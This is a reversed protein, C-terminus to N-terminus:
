RQNFNALSSRCRLRGGRATSTPALLSNLFADAQPGQPEVVLLGVV